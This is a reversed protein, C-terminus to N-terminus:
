VPWTVLHLQLIFDKEGEVKNNRFDNVQLLSAHEILLFYPFHRMHNALLLPAPLLQGLLSMKPFQKLFLIKFGFSELNGSDRVFMM